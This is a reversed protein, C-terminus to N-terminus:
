PEPNENQNSCDGNQQCSFKGGALGPGRDALDDVIRRCRTATGDISLVADVTVSAVHLASVVTGVQNTRDNHQMIPETVFDPWRQLLERIMRSIQRLLLNEIQRMEQMLADFRCRAVPVRVLRWIHEGAIDCRPLGVEIASAPAVLAMGWCAVKSTVSSAGSRDINLLIKKERADRASSLLRFHDYYRFGSVDTGAYENSNVVEINRQATRVALRLRDAAGRVHLYLHAIRKGHM